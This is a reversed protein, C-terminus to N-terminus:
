YYVVQIIREKLFMFFSSILGLIPKNLFFIMILWKDTIKKSKEALLETIALTTLQMDNRLKKYTVM